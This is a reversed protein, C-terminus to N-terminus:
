SLISSRVLRCFAKNNWTQYQSALKTVKNWCHSQSSFMLVSGLFLLFNRVYYKCIFAFVLFYCVFSDVVMKKKVKKKELYSKM